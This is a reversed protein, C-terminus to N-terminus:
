VCDVFREPVHTERKERINPLVDNPKRVFNCQNAIRDNSEVYNFKKVENLVVRKM